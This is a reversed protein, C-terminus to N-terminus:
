LIWDKELKGIENKLVQIKNKNQIEKSKREENQLERKRKEIEPKIAQWWNKDGNILWSNLLSKIKSKSMLQDLLSDSIGIQSSSKGKPLKSAGGTWNFSSTSEILKSLNGTKILNKMEGQDIIDIGEIQGDKKHANKLNARLIGEYEKLVTFVALAKCERKQDANCINWSKTNSTFAM